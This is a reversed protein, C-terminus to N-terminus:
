KSVRAISYHFNHQLYNMYYIAQARHKSFDNGHEKWYNATLVNDPHAEINICYGIQVEIIDACFASSRGNIKKNNSDLEIKALIDELVNPKSLSKSLTDVPNENNNNSESYNQNDM